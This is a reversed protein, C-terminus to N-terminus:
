MLSPAHSAFTNAQAIACFKHKKLRGGLFRSFLWSILSRKEPSAKKKAQPGAQLETQLENLRKRHRLLMQLIPHPPPGWVAKRHNSVKYVETNSHFYMSELPWIRWSLMMVCLLLLLLSLLLHRYKPNYDKNLSRSGKFTRSSYPLVCM